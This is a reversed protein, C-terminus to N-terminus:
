AELRRLFEDARGDMEVCNARRPANGVQPAAERLLRAIDERKRDMMATVEGHSVKGQVGAAWNTVIGISAYCLGLERALFVEPVLTMGVLDGGFFRMMDIEAKTEFRPGECCVYTGHNWTRLGLKLATSYLIKRLDPCFPETFDLHVTEDDYFTYKRSKTYDIVQDLIVMDGPAFSPNMSGVSSTALVRRVDLKRLACIHARYNVMNPPKEHEYGHRPIFAAEVGDMSGLTVVVEGFPTSVRKRVGESIFGELGTGGIIGVNM